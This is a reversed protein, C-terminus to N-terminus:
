LLVNGLELEPGKFIIEPEKGHIKSNIPYIFDSTIGLAKNSTECVTIVKKEKSNSTMKKPKPKLYPM